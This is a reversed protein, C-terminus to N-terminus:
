NKNNKVNRRTLFNVKGEKSFAASPGVPSEGPALTSPCCVVHQRVEGFPAVSM